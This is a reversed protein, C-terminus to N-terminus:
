PNYSMYFVNLYHNEDSIIKKNKLEFVCEPRGFVTGSLSGEGACAVHKPLFKLEPPRMSLLCNHFWDINASYIILHCISCM